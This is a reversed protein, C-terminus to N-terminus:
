LTMTLCWVIDSGVFVRDSNRLLNGNVVIEFTQKIAGVFRRFSYIGGISVTGIPRLADEGDSAVCLIYKGLVASRIQFTMSQGDASPTAHHPASTIAPNPVCWRDGVSIWMTSNMRFSGAIAMEFSTDILAEFHQGTNPGTPPPVSDPIDASLHQPAAVSQVFQRINQEASRSLESM